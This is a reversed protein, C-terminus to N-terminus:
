RSATGTLVARGRMTPAGNGLRRLQMPQGKGCNSIPHIEFDKGVADVSALYARTDAMMGGDRYLHTKEGREIRWIRRATIRFNERSEAISPIRMGELYWGDDVESVMRAPDSTGRGFVTTSMRILPVLVPSTAVYHGNPEEGLIAATQRSNMFGHFVGRDIHIIKRGPTGEHDYKYHGFGPLSPDSYATVLSAAIRKGLWNDQPSRYLWTRGAYATEMKVARDAEVPHGVIEHVLLSNFNPDTVVTVEGLDGPASPARATEVAEAALRMAYDEITAGRVNAGRDFVEVGGQNGLHDDMEYPGEPGTAVLFYDCLAFPFVQDIASGESSVYLHREIWLGAWIANFAIGDCAAVSRSAEAVRTALARPDLALPDEELRVIYRDLIPSTAALRTEELNGAVDPLSERLRAKARANARARRWAIDFAEEVFGPFRELDPRGVPVGIYGPSPIPEGGIVRIGMGARGDKGADRPAGDEADASVSEVATLRVDAFRCGPRALVIRELLEPLMELARDLDGIGLHTRDSM